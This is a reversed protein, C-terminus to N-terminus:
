SHDIYVEEVPEGNDLATVYCKYLAFDKPKLLTYGTRYYDVLSNTGYDEYEEVLYAYNGVDEVTDPWQEVSLKLIQRVAEPALAYYCAAKPTVITPKRVVAETPLYHLLNPQFTAMYMALEPTIVPRSSTACHERVVWAALPKIAISM